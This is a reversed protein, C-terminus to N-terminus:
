NRSGPPFGSEGYHLPTGNTVVMSWQKGSVHKVNNISTHTLTTGVLRTPMMYAIPIIQDKYIVCEGYPYFHRYQKDSSAFYLDSKVPGDSGEPPNLWQGFDIIHRASGISVNSSYGYSVILALTSNQIYTLYCCMNADSMRVDVYFDSMNYVTKVYDESDIRTYYVMQMSRQNISYVMIVDNVATITVHYLGNTKSTILTPVNVCPEINGTTILCHYCYRSGDTFWIHNNLGWMLVISSATVGSPLDWTYKVSDTTFDYVCLKPTSETTIYAVYRENNTSYIACAMYSDFTFHRLNNESGPHKRTMDLVLAKNQNTAQLCLLGNNSITKYTESYLNTTTTGFGDDGTTNCKVCYIADLTDMNTVWYQTGYTMSVIINNYCFSRNNTTGGPLISGIDSGITYAINSSPIYVNNNVVIYGRSVNCCSDYQRTITDFTFQMSQEIGVRSILQLPKTTRKPVLSATKTDTIYYRKNRVNTPITDRTTIQIWSDRNWYSDTAYITRVDDNNFGTIADNINLNQYVFMELYEDKNTYYIPTALGTEMTTETYWHNADNLFSVPVDYQHTYRNYLYVGTLDLQTFPARLGTNSSSIAINKGFYTSLSTSSFNDIECQVVTDINEPRSRICPEVIVFGDTYNYFGDLYGGLAGVVNNIDFENLNTYKTIQNNAVISKTFNRNVVGLQNYRRYIGAATETMCTGNTTTDLFRKPTTIVAYRGESWGQKILSELYTMCFYVTIYLRENVRKTISSRVGEIDYVWSHTWLENWATGIGYESIRVDDSVSDINYDFVSVQFKCVCTIIADSTTGDTYPYYYMPYGYGKTIDRLSSADSSLTIPDILEQTQMFSVSTDTGAGIYLNHPWSKNQNLYQEFGYNTFTNMGYTESTVNGDRDVTQAVYLNSLGTTPCKRKGFQMAREFLPDMHM